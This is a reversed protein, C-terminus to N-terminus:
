IEDRVQWSTSGSGHDYHYILPEINIVKLRWGRKVFTTHHALTKASSDTIMYILMWCYEWIRSHTFKSWMFFLFHLKILFYFTTLPKTQVFLFRITIYNLETSYIDVVQTQDLFQLEHQIGPCGCNSTINLALTNRWLSGRIRKTPATRVCSSHLSAASMASTDSWPGCVGTCGAVDLVCMRASVKHFVYWILFHIHMPFLWICVAPVLYVLKGIIHYRDIKRSCLVVNM